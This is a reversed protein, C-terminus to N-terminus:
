DEVGSQANAWAFMVMEKMKEMSSFVPADFQFTCTHSQPISDEEWKPVPEREGEKKKGRTPDIKQVPNLYYNFTVGTTNKPLRCRGWVFRLFQNREEPTFDEIMEWFMEVQKEVIEAENDGFDGQPRVQTIAKLDAPEYFQQGQIRTSIFDLPLYAISDLKGVFVAEM